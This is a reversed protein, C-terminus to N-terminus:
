VAHGGLLAAIRMASTGLGAAKGLTRMAILRSCQATEQYRSVALHWKLVGCMWQQLETVYRRVSEQASADLGLDAFLLPLEAKAVHEFQCIRSTMLDNVVEIAQQPDLDLYREIVLVGNSIEGEFQMEKQYSFIDNALCVYDTASNQLENVVRSQRVEPPLGDAEQGMRSLDLIFDAGFTKRRMEVYDIPDPIRNQVLNVLKWLWSELMRQIASRFRVRVSGSLSGATRSWLDALGREAANMPIAASVGEDPMFASLRTCFAKGGAMDRTQGYIRQFCDDTYLAWGLWEATLVLQDLSAEPQLLAGALAPDAGDFQRDDWVAVGPLGPWCDFMGMRRMWQRCPQRAARAHPNPAAAFPMQFKPLKVAGAPAYPVHSFSKLRLLGLAGPSLSLGASVGPGRPIGFVNRSGKAASPQVYRGSRLHWEHCGSQWDQLGKVYILVQARESADLGQEDFLFPLEVVATNEFQQLRSTLLDNVLDAARQADVGLFRELVLVGNSLEGEQMERPYSFLDNRLHVADGFATRLVHMPRTAVIRAPVEVANAHEMLAAAWATGGVKRRLEIYEIPNAVRQESIKSLERLSESLFNWTHEFFRRRWDVSKTPVTRSWLNALGRELPNVPEPPAASLDLPMFAPLRDLYQKAGARDQSHQYVTLFSDDFYFSWAFWDTVLDLATGPADPHTYACMLAYDMADFTAEDWVAHSSGDSSPDLIGMELAWTKTHLRASELNPNLRAPWPLYFDPLDFHRQTPAVAM